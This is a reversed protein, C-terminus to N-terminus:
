SKRLCLSCDAPPTPTNVYKRYYRYGIGNWIESLNQNFLNGMVLQSNCCIKVDGSTGVILSTWPDFCDKMTCINEFAKVERPYGSFPGKQPKIEICTESQNQVFQSVPFSSTDILIGRKKARNFTEKLAKTTTEPYYYLSDRSREERLVMLDRLVLSDVGLDAALDVLGPLEEVNQRMCVASISIHVNNAKEKSKNKSFYKINEVVRDFCDRGMLEKYVERSCANLSINVHLPSRSVLKEAWYENLLIGNTNFSIRAGKCCKAVYDFINEYDPNALPEGWGQIQVSSAFPLLDKFKLFQSFTINQYMNEMGDRESCFICRLNCKDGTPLGIAVPLSELIERGFAREWINLRENLTRIDEEMTEDEM